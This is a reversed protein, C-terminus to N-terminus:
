GVKEAIYGQLANYLSCTTDDSEYNFVVIIDETQVAIYHSIGPAALLYYEEYSANKWLGSKKETSETGSLRTGYELSSLLEIKQVSDYPITIEMNETSSLVMADKQFDFHVGASDDEQFAILIVAILVVFLVANIKSSNSTFINRLM